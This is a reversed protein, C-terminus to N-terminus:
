RVIKKLRKKGKLLLHSYGEVYEEIQQSLVQCENLM